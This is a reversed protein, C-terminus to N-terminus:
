RGHPWVTDGGAYPADGPCPLCLPGVVSPDCYGLAYELATALRKWRGWWVFYAVVPSRHYAAAAGGRRLGHWICKSFPTDSLLEALLAGLQSHPVSIPPNTTQNRGGGGGTRWHALASQTYTVQPHRSSSALFHVLTTNNFRNKSQQKHSRIPSPKQTVHSQVRNSPGEVGLAQPAVGLATCHLATCHGPTVSQKIGVARARLGGVDMM